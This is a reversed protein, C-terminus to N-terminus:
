AFDQVSLCNRISQRDDRFSFRFDWTLVSIRFDQRLLFVMDCWAFVWSVTM